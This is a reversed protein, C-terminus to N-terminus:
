LLNDLEAALTSPRDFRDCCDCHGAAAVFSIQEIPGSTPLLTSLVSATCVSGYEVNCGYQACLRALVQKGPYNATQQACANCTTARYSFVISILVINSQTHM